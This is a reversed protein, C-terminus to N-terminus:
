RAFAGLAFQRAPERPGYGRRLTARVVLVKRYFQMNEGLGTIVEGPLHDVRVPIRGGADVALDLPPDPVATAETERPCFVFVNAM